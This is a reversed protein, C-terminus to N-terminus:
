NFSEVFEKKLYTHPWNEWIKILGAKVPNHITYSIVNTLENNNRILRDFSETQWFAGTRNLYKNCNRSTFKKLNGIIDSVPHKSKIATNNTLHKFVIHVHNSMICYAYLDYFKNDRYHISEKIIDAISDKKLWQPGSSANDLVSEYTLFIKREIESAKDQPIKDSSSSKFNEKRYSRMESIVKKPLSGNLNFTIFYEGGPPQLHPLNRRYFYM